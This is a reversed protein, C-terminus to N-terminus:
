GVFIRFRDLMFLPLPLAVVFGLICIELISDERVLLVVIPWIFYFQEEIALSWFHGVMNAPPVIRNVWFMPINQLYFLYSGWEQRLPM